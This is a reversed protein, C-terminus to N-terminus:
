KPKDRKKGNIRGCVPCKQGAWVKSCDCSGCWFSRGRPKKSKERNSLALKEVEEQDNM